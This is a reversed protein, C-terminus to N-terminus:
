SIRTAGFDPHSVLSYLIGRHCRHYVRRHHQRPICIRCTRFILSPRLHPPPCATSRRVRSAAHLISEFTRASMPRPHFTGDLLNVIGALRNNCCPLWLPRVHSEVRPQSVLGLGFSRPCQNISKPTAQPQMQPGLFSNLYQYKPLSPNPSPM